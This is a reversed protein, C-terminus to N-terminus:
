LQLNLDLKRKANKSQQCSIWRVWAHQKSQGGGDCQSDLQFFVNMQSDAFRVSKRSNGPTAGSKLSTKTKGEAGGVWTRSSEMRFALRKKPPLHEPALSGGEAARGPSFPEKVSSHTSEAKSVPKGGGLGDHAENNEEKNDKEGPYSFGVSVIKVCLLLSSICVITKLCM